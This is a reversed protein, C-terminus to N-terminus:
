RSYNESESNLISFYFAISHHVIIYAYLGFESDPAQHFKDAGIHLLLLLWDDGTPLVADDDTQAGSQGIEM